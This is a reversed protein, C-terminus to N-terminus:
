VRFHWAMTQREEGGQPPLRGVAKASYRRGFKEVGVRDADVRADKKMDFKLADASDSDPALSQRAKSKETGQEHVFTTHGRVAIKLEGFETSRFVTKDKSDSIWKAAAEDKSYGEERIFWQKFANESLLFVRHQVSMKSFKRVESLIQAVLLQEAAGRRLRSGDRNCQMRLEMAKYKYEKPNQKKWMLLQSNDACKAISRDLCRQSNLCDKHYPTHGSMAVDDPDGIPERCTYCMLPEDGSGDSM